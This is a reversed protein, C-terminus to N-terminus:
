VSSYLKTFLAKTDKRANCITNRTINPVQTKKQKESVLVMQGDNWHLLRTDILYKDLFESQEPSFRSLENNNGRSMLLVYGIIFHLFRITTGGGGGGNNNNKPSVLREYESLIVQAIGNKMAALQDATMNMLPIFEQRGKVALYQEDLYSLHPFRKHEKIYRSIVTGMQDTLERQISENRQRRIEDSWVLYELAASIEKKRKTLTKQQNLLRLEEPPRHIPTSTAKRVKASTLPAKSIVPAPKGNSSSSSRDKVRRARVVKEKVPTNYSSDMSNIVVNTALLSHYYESGPDSQYYYNVRGSWLCVYAGDENVVM